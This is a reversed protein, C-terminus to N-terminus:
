ERVYQGPAAAVIPHRKSGLKAPADREEGSREAIWDAWHEWWTGQQRTAKERWGDADGNPEPGAYYHAKPNGPPNILSAIHGANSLVFTSPGDIMQTTRYCGHWPTLHDATAGTVYTEIKVKSLDVPTGLVKLAGRKVLLNEQFIELFEGHLRGPLNTADANWALIDFKPPDDGLLYNNVWYNWVLDNPRMWSFITALSRGKLVGDANSRGRALAILPPARFVGVPAPVDFDLLTVGFSATHVRTDGEAALHGLLGATLIGGACLSLTNLDDSGSIECVAGIAREVASAYDDLSWEAQKETPNRWSIAFFPIERSVAYEIFSRKPSLDMFYYRNIQPPIMLVPRSKTRAGSPEYQLLEFLEDRYVVAGPTAALDTGLEYADRPVHRPMRGNTLADGAANRTGKVLSMGATDFARKLAAPNGLLFNTPAAASTLIETIFRARDADKPELEATEVARMVERTWILYLDMLRRYAPNRKWAEDKFRWDGKAPEVDSRGALAKVAETGLKAGRRGLRDGHRAVEFLSRAVSGLSLSDVPEAGAAAEAIRDEDLLGESANIAM